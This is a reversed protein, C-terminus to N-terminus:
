LAHRLELRRILLSGFHVTLVLLTLFAFVVWMGILMLEGGRAILEGTAM